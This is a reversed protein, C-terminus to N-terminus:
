GFAKLRARYDLAELELNSPLPGRLIFLQPNTSFEFIRYLCFADESEESFELENRTVVFPTLSGGNTTKVEIFRAREDEEFSLIDYGAGDGIRDSVWDIQGALDHRDAGALRATEFGVTWAEGNHGLKRNHEDRLAYNFKRALRPRKGRAQLPAAKPPEVLVGLFKQEGITTQADLDDMASALEAQHHAVYAVVAQRLLAQLNSRPKYGRIYPLGLQDLVASINQHKLEISAKSRTILKTRLHENHEAKSYPAGAAEMRLMEFYDRVTEEVEEAAWDQGVRVVQFGLDTLLREVTAEGGSFVTASLPGEDPFAYGYAAGVIAKSDYLKGTAPDRLMYERSKGFGYKELFYARGVRDFEAMAAQIAPRSQLKALNM